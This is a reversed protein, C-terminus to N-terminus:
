LCASSMKPPRSRSTPAFPEDRPDLVFTPPTGDLGYRYVEGRRGVGVLADGNRALSVPFRSGPVPLWARGVLDGDGGREVVALRTGGPEYDGLVFREGDTWMASPYNHTGLERRLDIRGQRTWNEDFRHVVGEGGLVWVEGDVVSAEM